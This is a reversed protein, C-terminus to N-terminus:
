VYAQFICWISVLMSTLSLVRCLSLYSQSATIRPQRTELLLHRPIAPGGTEEVVEMTAMGPPRPEGVMATEELVSADEGVCPGSCGM